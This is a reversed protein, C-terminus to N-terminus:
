EVFYSWQRHWNGYNFEQWRSNSWDESTNLIHTPGQLNSEEEANVMFMPMSIELYKIMEMIFNVGRRRKEDNKKKFCEKTTDSSKHCFGCTIGWDLINILSIVSQDDSVDQKTKKKKNKMYNVSETNTLDKSEEGAAEDAIAINLCEQFKKDQSLLKKLSNGNRIGCVFQDRSSQCNVSLRRLRNAYM